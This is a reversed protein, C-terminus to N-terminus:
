DSSSFAIRLSLKAKKSPFFTVVATVICSLHSPSVRGVSLCAWGINLRPQRHRRDEKVANRPKEAEGTLTKLDRRGRMRRLTSVLRCPGRGLGVLIGAFVAAYRWFWVELVKEHRLGEIVSFFGCRENCINLWDLWAQDYRFGIMLQDLWASWTVSSIQFDTLGTLYFLRVMLSMSRTIHLWYYRDTLDSISDLRFGVRGASM